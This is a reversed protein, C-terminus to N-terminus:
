RSQYRLESKGSADHRRETRPFMYSAETFQGGKGAAYLDPGYVKGTADQSNERRPWKVLGNMLEFNEHWTEPCPPAYSDVPDFPRSSQQIIREPQLM